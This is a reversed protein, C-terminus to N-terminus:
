AARGSATSRLSANQPELVCRPERVRCSIAEKSPLTQLRREEHSLGGSKSKIEASRGLRHLACILWLEPMPCGQPCMTAETDESASPFSDEIHWHLDSCTDTGM